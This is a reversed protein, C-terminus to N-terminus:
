VALCKYRTQSFEIDDSELDFAMIYEMLVGTSRGLYVHKQLNQTPRRTRWHKRHFFFLLCNQVEVGLRQSGM